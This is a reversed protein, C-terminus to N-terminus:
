SHWLGIHVGQAPQLVIEAKMNGKPYHHHDGLMLDEVRNFHQLMRTVTYGMEALAFQQGICTRPGGNFPIYTWPLPSKEFWREPVFELSDESRRHLALTSYGIITDKLIGV